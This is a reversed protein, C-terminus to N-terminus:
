ANLLLWFVKFGFVFCRISAFSSILKGSYRLLQKERNREEARKEKELAWYCATHM